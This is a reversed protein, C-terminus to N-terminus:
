SQPKVGQQIPHDTWDPCPNLHAEESPREASFTIPAPADHPRSDPPSNASAAECASMQQEHQHENDHILRMLQLGKWIGVHLVESLPGEPAATQVKASIAAACAPRKTAGAVLSSRPATSHRPPHVPLRARKVDLASQSGVAGM